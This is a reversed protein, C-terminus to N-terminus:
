PAVPANSHSSVIKDLKAAAENSAYKEMKGKADTNTIFPKAVHGDTTQTVIDRVTNIEPYARLGSPTLEPDRIDNANIAVPLGVNDFEGMGCVRKLWDNVAGRIQIEAANIDLNSTGIANQMEYPVFIEGWGKISAATSLKAAIKILPEVASQINSAKNQPKISMGNFKGKAIDDMHLKMNEVARDLTQTFRDERKAASLHSATVSFRDPKKEHEVIIEKAIAAIRENSDDRPRVM